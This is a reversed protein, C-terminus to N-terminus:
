YRHEENLSIEPNSSTYNVISPDAQDLSYMVDQLGYVLTALQWSMVLQTAKLDDLAVEADARVVMANVVDQWGNRDARFLRQASALLARASFLSTQMPPLRQELHQLEVMRSMIEQKLIRRRAEVEARRAVLQWQAQRIDSANSLGAGFRSSLQVFLRSRGKTQTRVYDGIQHELRLNLQPRMKAQAAGIGAFAAYVEAQLRQLSLDQQQALNLLDPLSQPLVWPSPPNGVLQASVLPQGYWQSLNFLATQEMTQAQQLRTTSSVWQREASVQEKAALLGKDVRRRVQLLMTKISQVQQQRIQRQNWAMLWDGYAQVVQLAMNQQLEGASAQSVALGAQAQQVGAQLAGGTWMPQQLKLTMVQEDATYATDNSETVVSEYVVSSTPYFQWKASQVAERAMAIQAQSADISPHNALSFKLIQALSVAPVQGWAPSCLLLGIPLCHRILWRRYRYACSPM